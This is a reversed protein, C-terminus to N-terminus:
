DDLRGKRYRVSAEAILLAIKLRFTWRALDASVQAEWASYGGAAEIEPGFRDATEFGLGECARFGVCFSDRELFLLPWEADIGM